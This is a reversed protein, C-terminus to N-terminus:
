VGFNTTVLHFFFDLWGVKKLYYQWIKINEFWGVIAVLMERKLTNMKKDRLNHIAPNKKNQQYVFYIIGNLGM